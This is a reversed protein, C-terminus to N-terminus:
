LQWALWLNKKEMILPTLVYNTNKMFCVGNSKRLYIPQITKLVRYHSFIINRIYITVGGVKLM